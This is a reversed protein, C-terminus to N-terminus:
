AKIKIAYKNGKMQEKSVIEHCPKCYTIGNDVEFRLEIHEAFSKIHHANLEKGRERCRQCTYDDREFVSTRWEKIENSHRIILIKPTLGGKWNASKEGTKGLWSTRGKNAESMKLKTEDTHEFGLCNINGMKALSMKLKTEDSCPQVGKLGKNWPIRGKSNESQKKNQEDSRKKGKNALGIKLKHEESMIYGKKFGMKAEEVPPPPQPEGM